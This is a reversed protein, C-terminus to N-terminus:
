NKQAIYFVYGYYERYKEYMEIEDVLEDVLKKAKANNDYRELFQPIHAQIPRYYNDVWCYEPLKFSALVNFGNKRLVKEKNEIRNMQSYANQWYAELEEPRSDTFWSIESVVLIGNDKLFKRWAKVGERFGMIYVAGESWILDFSKRKYPLSDMSQVDTTIRDDFGNALVKENLKELFEPYLDVATIHGMTHEALTLTQAGTGCGIDAIQIQDDTNLGSLELAKLSESPSGPGQRPINKYFEIMIEIESM